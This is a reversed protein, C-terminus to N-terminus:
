PQKETERVVTIKHVGIFIYRFFCKKNLFAKEGNCKENFFDTGGKREVTGM